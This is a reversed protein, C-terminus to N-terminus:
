TYLQAIFGNRMRPEIYTSKPPMTGNMDSIAILDELAVPYLNFAAMVKQGDVRREL